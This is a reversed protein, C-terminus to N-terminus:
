IREARSRAGGGAEGFLEIKRGVKLFGALQVIPNVARQSENDQYYVLGAGGLLRLAARNTEVRTEIGPQLTATFDPPLRETGELNFVNTDFGIESLRLTPAVSVVGFRLQGFLHPEPPISALGTAAPVTQVGTAQATGQALALDGFAICLAFGCALLIGPKM